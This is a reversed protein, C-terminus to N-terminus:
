GSGIPEGTELLTKMGSVIFPIGAVFDQYTKSAPDLEHYEVAVRTLGMSEEVLWVTRVAGEAELEPDWRPHFMMEVRKPADISVIEGDAVVDGTASLYRIPSGPAWDSDVKTGYFYRFTQEGDVIAEWAAEVPCRIYAEYVHTPKSMKSGGQELRVKLEAVAGAWPETFKNIWRDHVLRIPVPNLYHYKSRGVKRTTVLGGEALVNLHNMVGYRTMEPLHECLESLTQGDTEFLRDLLLRRSPDNLASFM